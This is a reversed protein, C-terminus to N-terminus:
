KELFEQIKEEVEQLFKKKTKFSNKIMVKEFPIKQYWKLWLPYLDYITKQYKALIYFSNNERNQDKIRKLYNPYRRHWSIEPKTDFFITKCDFKEHYTLYKYFFNNAIKKGCFKEAYVLHFIGTEM